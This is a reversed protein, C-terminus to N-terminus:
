PSICQSVRDSLQISCLNAIDKLEMYQAHGYIIDCLSSIEGCSFLESASSSEFKGRSFDRRSRGPRDNGQNGIQRRSKGVRSEM